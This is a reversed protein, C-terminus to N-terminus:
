WQEEEPFRVGAHVRQDRSELRRVIAECALGENFRDGCLGGVRLQWVEVKAWAVVGLHFAM